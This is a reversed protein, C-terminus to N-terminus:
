KSALFKAVGGITSEMDIAIPDCRLDRETPNCKIAHNTVEHSNRHIDDRLRLLSAGSVSM